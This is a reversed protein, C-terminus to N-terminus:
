FLVGKQTIAIYRNGTLQLPDFLFIPNFDCFIAQHYFSCVLRISNMNLACFIATKINDDIIPSVMYVAMLRLLFNRLNMNFGEATVVAYPDIRIDALM